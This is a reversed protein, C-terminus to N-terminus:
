AARKTIARQEAIAIFGDADEPSIGLNMLRKVSVDHLAIALETRHSWEHYHYAHSRQVETLSGKHAIHSSWAVTAQQDTQNNNVVAESKAEKAKRKSKGSPEMPDTPPKPRRVEIAADLAETAAKADFGFKHAVEVRIHARWLPLFEQSAFQEHAIWLVAYRGVLVNADRLTALDKVFADFLARQNPEYSDGPEEPPLPQLRLQKMMEIAGNLWAKPTAQPLAKLLLAFVATGEEGLSEVSNELWYLAVSALSAKTMKAITEAHTPKSPETVEGTTPNIQEITQKHRAPITELEMEDLMGLGLISLTARRKAKSEVKMVGNVLDSTPLTAVSTEVRGDPMSAECKAYLM